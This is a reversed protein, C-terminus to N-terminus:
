ILGVVLAPYVVFTTNCNILAKDHLKQTQFDLFQVNKWTKLCKLIFYVGMHLSELRKSSFAKSQKIFM